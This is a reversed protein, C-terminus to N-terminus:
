ILKVVYKGVFSAMGNRPADGEDTEQFLVEDNQNSIETTIICRNTSLNIDTVNTKFEMVRDQLVTVVGLSTRIGLDGKALITKEAHESSILLVRSGGAQENGIHIRIFLEDSSSKVAIIHPNPELTYTTIVM